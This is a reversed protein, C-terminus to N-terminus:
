SCSATISVTLPILHDKVARTRHSASSKVIAILRPESNPRMGDNPVTNLVSALVSYRTPRCSSHRCDSYRVFMPLRNLEDAGRVLNCSRTLRDIHIHGTTATRSYTILLCYVSRCYLRTATRRAGSPDVACEAQSWNAYTTGSWAARASTMCWQSGSVGSSARTFCSRAPVQCESVTNWRWRCTGEVCVCVCVCVCARTYVLCLCLTVTIFKSVRHSCSRTNSKPQVATRSSM